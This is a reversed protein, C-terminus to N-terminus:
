AASRVLREGDRKLGADRQQLAELFGQKDRPSILVTRDTATVCLRDLSWAPGSTIDRTPEVSRISALPVSWRLPGSQIRLAAAGVVYHTDLLSWVVLVACGGMFVIIFVRLVWSGTAWVNVMSFAGAPLVSASLLVLWADYKSRFSAV